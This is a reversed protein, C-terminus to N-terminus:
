KVCWLYISASPLLSFFLLSLSILRTKLWVHSSLIQNRVPGTYSAVNPHVLATRQPCSVDSCSFDWLRDHEVLHRKRRGVPPPVITPSSSFETLGQGPSSCDFMVPGGATNEYEVFAWVVETSLALASVVLAFLVAM